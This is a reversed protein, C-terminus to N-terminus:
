SFLGGGGGWGGFSPALFPCLAQFHQTRTSLETGRHFNGPFPAQVKLFILPNSQFGLTPASFAITDNGDRGPPHSHVRVGTGLM